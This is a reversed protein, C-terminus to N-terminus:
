GRGRRTGLIGFSRFVSSGPVAGVVGGEGDRLDGDAV